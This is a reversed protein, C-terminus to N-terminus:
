GAIKVLTERLREVEEMTNYHAAGVRVMGGSAEVGLRETVAL